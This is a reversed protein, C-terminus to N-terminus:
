LGIQKEELCPVRYCMKGKQPHFVCRYQNNCRAVDIQVGSRGGDLTDLGSAAPAPAALATGGALLFAAIALVKTVM